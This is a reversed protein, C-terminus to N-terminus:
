PLQACSDFSDPRMNIHCIQEPSITTWQHCTQRTLGIWSCITTATGYFFSLLFQSILDSFAGSSRDLKYLVVAIRGWIWLQQLDVVALWIMDNDFLLIFIKGRRRRMAGAARAAGMDASSEPSSTSWKTSEACQEEKQWSKSLRVSLLAPSNPSEPSSKSTSVCKIIEQHQVPQSWTEM